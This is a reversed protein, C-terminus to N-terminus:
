SFHKFKFIKKGMYLIRFARPILCEEVDRIFEQVCLKANGLIYFATAIPIKDNIVKKKSIIEYVSSKGDLFIPEHRKYFKSNILKSLNDDTRYCVNQHKRLNM